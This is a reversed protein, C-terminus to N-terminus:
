DYKLLNVLGMGQSLDIKKLHFLSYDPKSKEKVIVM